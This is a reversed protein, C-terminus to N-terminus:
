LSRSANTSQCGLGALATPQPELLAIHEIANVNRPWVECPPAGVGARLESVATWIITEISSNMRSFSTGLEALICKAIGLAPRAGFTMVSM